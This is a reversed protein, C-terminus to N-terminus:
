SAKMQMGAGADEKISGTNLVDIERWWSLNGKNDRKRYQSADLPNYVHHSGCFVPTASKRKGSYPDIDCIGEHDSELSISTHIDKDAETMNWM